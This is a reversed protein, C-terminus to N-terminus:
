STAATLPTVQGALEPVTEKQALKKWWTTAREETWRGACRCAALAKELGAPDAVRRGPKEALCRLVVEPLHTPIDPRLEAPPTVPDFVHAMVAQMATDRVFPPRGTLLYYAVAGLSYIDSRRDADNGTAQEPSMYQPSGAIAGDQPLRASDGKAGVTRVMGFDLLRAVDSQGGGAWARA